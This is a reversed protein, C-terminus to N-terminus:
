NLIVWFLNTGLIDVKEESIFYEQIFSADTSSCSSQKLSLTIRGTESNVQPSFISNLFKTVLRKLMEFKYFTTDFLEGVDLINSRVSQGVYYAESLDGKHDDM